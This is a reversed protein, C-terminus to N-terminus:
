KVPEVTTINRIKDNVSVTVIIYGKDDKSIETTICVEGNGTSIENKHIAITKM